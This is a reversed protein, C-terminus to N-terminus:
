RGSQNLWKCIAGIFNFAVIMILMMVTMQLMPSKKLRGGGREGRFFSRSQFATPRDTM